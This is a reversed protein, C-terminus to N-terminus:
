MSGAASRTRDRSPSASAPPLSSAATSSSAKLNWSDAEAAKVIGDARGIADALMKNTLNDFRTHNANAKSM